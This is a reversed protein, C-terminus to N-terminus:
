NGDHRRGSRRQQRWRWASRKCKVSKRQGIQKAGAAQHRPPPTDYANQAATLNGAQLASSLEGFAQRFQAFPNTPPLNTSSVASVTMIRGRDPNWDRHFPM